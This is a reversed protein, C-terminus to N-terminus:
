AELRGKRQMTCLINLRQACVVEMGLNVHDIRKVLQVIKLNWVIVEGKTREKGVM